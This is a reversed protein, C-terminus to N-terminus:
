VPAAPFCASASIRDPLPLLGNAPSNFAVSVSVRDFGGVGECIVGREPAVDASLLRVGRGAALAAVHSRTEPLTLCANAGAALCRAGAHAVNELTQRTWLMRGGEILGFLMATFLPALLAFEVM